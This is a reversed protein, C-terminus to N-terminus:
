FFFLKKTTQMIKEKADKKRRKFLHLKKENGDKEKDVWNDAWRNDARWNNARHNDAHNNM